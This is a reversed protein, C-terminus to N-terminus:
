NGGRKGIRYRRLLKRDNGGRKGIRYRRLLKRDVDGNLRGEPSDGHDANTEYIRLHSDGIRKGTVTHFSVLFLFSIILLFNPANM